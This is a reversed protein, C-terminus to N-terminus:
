RPAGSLLAPHRADLRHERRAQRRRRPPPRHQHLGAWQDRRVRRLADSGDTMTLAASGNVEISYADLRSPLYVLESGPLLNGSEIQQRTPYPEYGFSTARGLVEGTSPDTVLDAPRAYLPHQYRGTRTYSALFQPSFYGTLLVVGEGNYGVSEYVDFRDNLMESASGGPRQSALQQLAEVSARARDYPIGDVPFAQRASPLRFWDASRGLAEIFAADGLQQAAERLVAERREGTVLRLAPEGPALPRAYDPVAAPGKCGAGVALPFLLGLVILVRGAAARHSM